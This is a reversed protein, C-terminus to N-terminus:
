EKSDGRRRFPLIWKPHIIPIWQNEPSVPMLGLLFTNKMHFSGWRKDDGEDNSGREQIMEQVFMLCGEELTARSKIKWWRLLSPQEDTTLEAAMFTESGSHSHDM